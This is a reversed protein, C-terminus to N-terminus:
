NTHNTHNTHPEHTRTNTHPQIIHPEHTTRTHNPHPEHTRTHNTHPEHTRTHNFSIPNAHQTHNFSIPNTHEPTFKNYIPHPYHAKAKAHAKAVSNTFKISLRNIPQPEVTLDPDFDIKKLREYDLAANKAKQQELKYQGEIAKQTIAKKAAQKKKLAEEDRSLPNPLRFPNSPPLTQLVAANNFNQQLPTTLTQQLPTTLTQQLSPVSTRQEAFTQELHQPLPPASPLPLDSQQSIYSPSFPNTNITHLTSPLPPASPLPSDSQTPPIYFPSFPNTNIKQSLSSLPPAPPQGLFQNVTNLSTKTSKNSFPNSSNLVTSNAYDMFNQTEHKQQHKQLNQIQKQFAQSTNNQRIYSQQSTNIKGYKM